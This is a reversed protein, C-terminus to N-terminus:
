DALEGPVRVIVKSEEEKLDLPMLRAGQCPGAVCYGTEMEYMAGHMHCQLHAKDHTFFKDDNLDLTVPLHMCRNQYAFYKGEKRVVFGKVIKGRIKVEFSRAELEGLKKKPITVFHDDARV